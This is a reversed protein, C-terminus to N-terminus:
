YAFPRNVITDFAALQCMGALCEQWLAISVDAAQLVGAHGYKFEISQTAVVLMQANDGAPWSSMCVAAIDLVCRMITLIDVANPVTLTYTRAETFVVCASPM